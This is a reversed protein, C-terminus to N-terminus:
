FRGFNEHTTTEAHAIDATMGFRRKYARRLVVRCRCEAVTKLTLEQFILPMDNRKIVEEILGEKQREWTALSMKEVRGTFNLAFDAADM